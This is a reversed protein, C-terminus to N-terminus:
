GCSKIFSHIIKEINRLFGWKVPNKWMCVQPFVQPSQPFGRHFGKSVCM